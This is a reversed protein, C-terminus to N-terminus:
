SARLLAVSSHAHSPQCAATVSSIEPAMSYIADEVTRQMAELSLSSNGVGHLLVNVVRDDISHLEVDGGRSQLWPRLHDIASRVRGEVPIPHLDHLLLVGSVVDDKAMAALAAEADQMGCVEDLIREIAIGHLVVVCRLLEQAVARTAPDGFTQLLQTLEEIRESRRNFERNAMTM